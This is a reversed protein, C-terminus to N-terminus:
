VGPQYGRDWLPHRQHQRHRGFLTEELRGIAANFDTKLKAYDAAFAEGIRYTLDGDSLHELAAAIAQVAVTQRQGAAQYDAELARLREAHEAHVSAAADQLRVREILAGRFTELAGAMDGIEDRRGLGPVGTALAGEAIQRMAATIRTIPSTVRRKVLLIVCAAILVMVIMAGAALLMRVRARAYSSAVSDSAVAYAVDRLKIMQAWIPLVLERYHAGDYPYDGTAFSPELRQREAAFTEFYASRVSLLGNRVTEPTDPLDLLGILQRWSQDVQGEMATLVLKQDLPMPKRTGFTSQVLTAQRGAMDRMHWVTGAIGAWRFAPGHAAGLRALQADMIRSALDAIAGAQEVIAPVAGNRQAVPRQLQQSVFDRFATFHRDVDAMQQALAASDDTRGAAAAVTRRATDMAVDTPHRGEGLAAIKANDGPAIAQVALTSLGREQSLASSIDGLSQIVALRTQATRIDAMASWQLVAFVGASACGLAALTLISISLLRNVTM